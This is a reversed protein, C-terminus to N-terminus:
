VIEHCTLLRRTRRAYSITPRTDNSYPKRYDSLVEVVNIYTHHHILSFSGSTANSGTNTNLGSCVGVLGDISIPMMPASM